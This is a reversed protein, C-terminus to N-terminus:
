ATTFTYTPELVRGSGALEEFVLVSVGETAFGLIKNRVEEGPIRTSINYGLFLRVVYEGEGRAVGLDSGEVVRDTETPM